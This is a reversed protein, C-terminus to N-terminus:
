TPLLVIKVIHCSKMKDVCVWYISLRCYSLVKRPGADIQKKDYPKMTTKQVHINNETENSFIENM